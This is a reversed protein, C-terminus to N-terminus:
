SNKENIMGIKRVFFIIKSTPFHANIFYTTSKSFLLSIQYTQRM